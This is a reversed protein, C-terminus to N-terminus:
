NSTRITPANLAGTLVKKVGTRRLIQGWGTIRYVPGEKEVAVNAQEVSQGILRTVSKKDLGTRAVIQVLTAGGPADIAALVALMRRLDGKPYQPIENTM